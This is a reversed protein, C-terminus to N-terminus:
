DAFLISPEVTCMGNLEYESGGLLVLLNCLLECTRVATPTMWGNMSVPNVLQAIAWCSKLLVNLTTPQINGQQIGITQVNSQLSQKLCWDAFTAVSVFFNTVLSSLPIPLLRTRLYALLLVNRGLELIM